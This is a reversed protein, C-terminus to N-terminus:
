VEDSWERFDTDDSLVGLNLSVEQPKALKVQLQHQLASLWKTPDRGAVPSSPNVLDQERSHM